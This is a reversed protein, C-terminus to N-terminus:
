GVPQPRIRLAMRDRSEFHIQPAVEVITELSHEIGAATPKAGIAYDFRDIGSSVTRPKTNLTLPFEDM